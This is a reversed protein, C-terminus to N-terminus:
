QFQLLRFIPATLTLDTIKKITFLIVNRVVCAESLRTAVSFRQAMSPPMSTPLELTPKILLLCKSVTEFIREPSLEPLSTINDDIDSFNKTFLLRFM